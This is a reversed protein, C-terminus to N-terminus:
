LFDLLSVKDNSEPSAPYKSTKSVNFMGISTQLYLDPHIKLINEGRDKEIHYGMYFTAEALNKITFRTVLSDKVRQMAAIGKVGVFIDGVHAVVINQLITDTTERLVCPSAIPQESKSEKLGQVLRASWKRSVQVIEWLPHDLNEVAGEFM